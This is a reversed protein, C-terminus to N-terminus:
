KRGQISTSDYLPVQLPGKKDKRGFVSINVYRKPNVRLDDLLTTLSRNTLLLQDYLKSDNLLLGLTGQKSDIKEVANDLKAMSNKLSQIAEDLKLNAFNGSAKDLNTLTNNIKDNNKALNGTILEVNNLSRALSGNKDNLLRDLSKSTSNLSAIMGQINTQTRPDVIENLRTILMQLRIIAENANNIAPNISKTFEGMVSLNAKTLLTDGDKAMTRSDGLIIDVATTELLEESITVVSNKPINIDKTLHISIIIGSLNKDTEQMESVKGVQLGNILVANSVELGKVNPFVAYVTDSRQTLNRGKLYNFGLILVVIAIATLAGVKTENSIKM